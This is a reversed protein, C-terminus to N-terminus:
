DSFGTESLTPRGTLNTNLGVVNDKMAWTFQQEDLVVFYHEEAVIEQTKYYLRKREAPDFSARAEEALKAIEDTPAGTGLGNTAVYFATFESQDPIDPKGGAWAIAEYEGAFFEETLASVDLPRLKVEFGVETLEQQLIQTATTWYPDGAAYLMTFSPDTGDKVAEALLEKAKPLDQATPKINPDWDPVASPVWSGAPKGNGAAAAQIVNERSIALDFAERARIDKFSPSTSSLNVWNVLAWSYRGITTDPEQELQSIQTFPPALIAELQGGRLQSVRGNPDTALKAEIRDLLPEGKRWYHPNRVLTMSQGQKWSALTFPGTGIPHQAFEEETLGGYNKPVIVASFVSLEAPLASDPEKMDIVVTLPGTARVGKVREFLFSWLTSPRVKELSFVVDEATLPDGNSFTVGKQLQLTWTLHDPSSKYSKALWPELESEPNTRILPEMIQGIMHVSTEGTPKTPVFSEVEEVEALTLTGGAQPAANSTAGSDGSGGCGALLFAALATAVIAGCRTTTSFRKFM